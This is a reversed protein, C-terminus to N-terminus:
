VRERCSARGIERDNARFDIEKANKKPSITYFVVNLSCFAIIYRYFSHLFLAFFPSLIILLGFLVNQNNSAFIPYKQISDINGTFHYVIIFILALSIVQGLVPILVYKSTKDLYMFYTKLSKFFINFVSLIKNNKKKTM